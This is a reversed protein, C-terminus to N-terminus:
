EIYILPREHIAKSAALTALPWLLGGVACEPLACTGRDGVGGMKEYRWAIKMREAEGDSRKADRSHREGQGEVVGPLDRLWAPSAGVVHVHHGQVVGEAAYCRLLAGAYDSTGTEEILVSHGLPLGAHGALLGDLSPTGTSTTLRGDAPSPRTGSPIISERSSKSAKTAADSADASSNTDTLM